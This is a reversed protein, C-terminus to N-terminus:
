FCKISFTYFIGGILVVCRFWGFCAMYFEKFTLKKERENRKTKRREKESEREKRGFGLRLGEAGGKEGKGKSMKV